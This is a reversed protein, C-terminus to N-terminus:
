AQRQVMVESTLGEVGVAGRAASDLKEQQLFDEEERWRYVRNIGGHASQTNGGM